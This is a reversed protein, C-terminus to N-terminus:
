ESSSNEEEKKLSALYEEIAKRKIEEEDLQNAGVEALVQARAKETRDAIVMKVILFINYAFLLVLPLLIILAFALPDQLFKIVAGVGIIRGGEWVALIDRDIYRIGADDKNYDIQDTINGNEDVQYIRFDDLTAGHMLTFKDGRTVYGIITYSEQIDDADEVYNKVYYIKTEMTENNEDTYTCYYGVIRHTNLYYGDYGKVAFTVVTGLPLVGNPVEEGFIIDNTGITPEMSDSMVYMLDTNCDEPEKAYGGPNIIVFISITVCIVVMIIQLTTFIANVIKEKKTLPKEEKVEQKDKKKFITM